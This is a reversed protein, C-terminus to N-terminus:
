EQKAARALEFGEVHLGICRLLDSARISRDLRFIRLQSDAFMQRFHRLNRVLIRDDSGHGVREVIVTATPMVDLGALPPVQRDTTPEITSVFIPGRDARHDVVKLLAAM